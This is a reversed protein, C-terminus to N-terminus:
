SSDARLRSAAQASRSAACRWRPRSCRAAKSSSSSARRSRPSPSSARSRSACAVARTASSSASIWDLRASRWSSAPCCPDSFGAKILGLLVQAHELARGPLELLGELVGASQV